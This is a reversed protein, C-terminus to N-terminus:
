VTRERSRILLQEMDSRAHNIVTGSIDHITYQYETYFKKFHGYHNRIAGNSDVLHYITGTSGRLRGCCQKIMNVDKFSTAIILNDTNIGDFDDCLNSEDFGVGGKKDVIVLVRCNEYGKTNGALKDASVGYYNLMNVLLTAHNVRSVLIFFKSQPASMCLRVMYENRPQCESITSILKSFDLKGQANKSEPHMIGTNIRYVTMPRMNRLLHKHEGLVLKMVRDYGNTSDPTASCGIVYLPTVSLVAEIATPTCLMHHEDLILTSVNSRLESPVHQYRSTMCIIYDPMGHIKVVENSAPTYTHGWPLKGLMVGDRYLLLYCDAPLPQEGVMWVSVPSGDAKTVARQISGAWQKMLPERCFMVMRLGNQQSSIYISSMTKGMGTDFALTTCRRQHLDVLAGTVPASQNDRLQAVWRVLSGQKSSYTVLQPYHTLAYHYPVRVSSPGDAAYCLINPKAQGYGSSGFTKKFHKVTCQERITIAAQQALGALSLVAAM